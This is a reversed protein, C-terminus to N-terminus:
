GCTPNAENSDAKLLLAPSVGYIAAADRLGEEVEERSFGLADLQQNTMQNLRDYFDLAVELYTPDSEDLHEFLLNEAENIQGAAIRETLRTYLLDADTKEQRKPFVYAPQDKHFLLNALVRTIMEVQRMLWDEHVM